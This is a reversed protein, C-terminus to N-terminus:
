ALWTHRAKFDVVEVIVHAQGVPRARDLIMRARDLIARAQDPIMRIRLQPLM